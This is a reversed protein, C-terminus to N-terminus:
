DRFKEKKAIVDLAYQVSVKDASDLDISRTRTILGDRETSRGNFHYAMILTAMAYANKDSMEFAKRALELAQRDKKQRLLTRSKSALGYISEQNLRLIRDNYVLAGEPDGEERKVSTEMALAPFYENDSKLAHELLSDCLPYEKRDFLLGAYELTAYRDEPNKKLYRGWATDAIHALDSYAAKFTAFSDNSVYAEAKAMVKEIDAYLERDEISVHELSKIETGFTEYDQNYFAAILLHGRAEVSGPVKDLVKKLENEATRFKRQREAEKGRQLHVGLSISRPLTFLSFLLVIAVGGAFLRVWLPINLRTFHDRCGSCLPAGHSGEAAAQGCGACSRESAPEVTSLTEDM